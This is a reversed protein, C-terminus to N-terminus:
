EIEEDPLISTVVEFSGGIKKYDNTFGRYTNETPKEDALIFPVSAANAALMMIAFLLPDDFTDILTDPKYGPGGNGIIELTNEDESLKAYQGMLIAIDKIEKIRNFSEHKLKEIGTITVTAGRLIAIAAIMPAIQPYTNVDLSLEDFNFPLISLVEPMIDSIEKPQQSLDMLNVMAQTNANLSGALLWMSSLEWDTQTIVTKPSKYHQKGPILYENNVKKIAIGFQQMVKVTLEIESTDYINESLKVRSGTELLPLAPLIACINAAEDEDFSYEGGTLKGFVDCPLSFGSFTLGRISLKGTFGVLRKKQLEPEAMCTMRNGLAGCLAIMARAARDCSYFNFYLSRAGQNKDIPTVIVDNDEFVFSCGLETLCAMTTDLDDSSPINCIRTQKDSVASVFLLRQAHQISTPAKISGNLKCPNIRLM